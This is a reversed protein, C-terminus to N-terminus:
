PLVGAPKTFSGVAQAILSLAAYASLLRVRERDGLLQRREAFTKGGRRALAFCVTGVPKDDTGGDPGAVGTIAVALDASVKALVGEAMASAVELSVAGHREILAADVGLVNRKAQNAYSVVDLLFYASSGAQDTLLKGLLGGTCSEAVALKLGYERLQRGVFAPFSDGRGYAPGGYAYTGLRERVQAATQEALRQATAEDVARVLVKVEIEPMAARYGITVGPRQLAGGVDIDALREAVESERLGFTRIHIQHSTRQVEPTMEPVLYRTFLHQMERPVGPFFYARAGGIQLVFGPATGEDNDLARAGQPLDAQKENNLPMARPVARPKAGQGTGVATGVVRRFRERIRALTHEDRVLPVGALDAVAQATLDDSTPGLGGTCVVLKVERGFRALTGRVRESDDPVVAHEIVEFGLATLRDSLWTANGNVLEGRTLETGIALVAAKM